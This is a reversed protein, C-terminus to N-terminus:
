SNPTTPKILAGAPVTTIMYEDAQPAHRHASQVFEDAPHSQDTTIAVFDGGPDPRM